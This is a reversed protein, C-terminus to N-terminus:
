GEVVWKIKAKQAVESMHTNNVQHIKNLTELHKHVMEVPTNGKDIAEDFMRLDEPADNWADRVLKDFGDVELWYNYFRFPIPGYDFIAERLLIPRHDLIYHDLSIANINACSHLLNETVLFRDLKSM